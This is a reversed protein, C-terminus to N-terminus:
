MEVGLVLSLNRLLERRRREREHRGLVPLVSILNSLMRRVNLIDSIGAQFILSKGALRTSPTRIAAAGKIDRDGLM